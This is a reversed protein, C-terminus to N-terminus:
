PTKEDSVFEKKAEVLTFSSANVTPTGDKALFGKIIVEAGVFDEKRLGQKMLTTPGASEVEWTVVKGDANKVDVYLHAHPNQWGMKVITGRLTIPKNGDYTASFSHHARLPAAALLLGLSVTALALITRM